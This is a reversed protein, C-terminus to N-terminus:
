KGGFTSLSKRQQEVEKEMTEMKKSLHENEKKLEIMYLSLEEIKELLKADMEAVDLGNKVMQDASPVGPLHKNTKIFAEVETLSRLSYGEAFVHDAWNSSGNIACKIKAALIGKSVFLNYSAPYPVAATFESPQGIVVRGDYMIEMRQKDGSNYTTVDKTTFRISGQNSHNTIILNSGLIGTGSTSKTMSSIVVDNTLAVSSFCGDCLSANKKAVGMRVASWDGSSSNGVMQFYIANSSTSGINFGGGSGSVSHGVSGDNKVYMLQNSSPDNLVFQSSSGSLNITAGGTGYVSMVETGAPASYFSFKDTSGGGVHFRLQGTQAGIGYVQTPSTTATGNDWLALLTNAPANGFSLKYYPFPTGIGVKTGSINFVSAGGSNTGISFVNDGSNMLRVNYDQNSGNGYHFDLYPLGGTVPNTGNNKAGLEISGGQDIGLQSNYTSNQYNWGIDGAVSLKNPASAVGIGVNSKTTTSSYAINIASVGGAVIDFSYGNTTGITTTSTNTGSPINWNQSHAHFCFFIGIFSTTVLRLSNRKTGNNPQRQNKM